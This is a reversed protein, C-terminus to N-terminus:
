TEERSPSPPVYVGYATRRTRRKRTLYGLVNYIDKQPKGLAAVMDAVRWPAPNLRMFELVAQHTETARSNSQSPLEVGFHCECRPCIAMVRSM